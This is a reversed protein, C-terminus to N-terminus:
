GELAKIAANLALITADHDAIIALTEAEDQKMSDLLALSGDRRQERDKIEDKLVRIAPSHDM